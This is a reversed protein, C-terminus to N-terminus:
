EVIYQTIYMNLVLDEGIIQNIKELLEKKILEKAGPQLVEEVTKSGLVSIITDQIVPTKEKIEEEAKKDPVELCIRVQLYRKGTPDLLNVVIPDLDVFVTNHSVRREIRKHETGEEVRSEKGKMLFTVVSGAIGIVLIGIFIFLILRKKDGKKPATEGENNPM